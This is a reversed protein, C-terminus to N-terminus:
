MFDLSQYQCNTSKLTKFEGSLVLVQCKKLKKDSSFYFFPTAAGKEEDGLYEDVDFDRIYKVEVYKIKKEDRIYITAWKKEEAM